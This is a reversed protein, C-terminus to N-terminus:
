PVWGCEKKLAFFGFALLGKPEMSAKERPIKHGLASQPFLKACVTYGDKLLECVSGKRRMLMHKKLSNNICSWAGFLPGDLLPTREEMPRGYYSQAATILQDKTIKPEKWEFAAKLICWPASKRAEQHMLWTEMYDNTAQPISRSQLAQWDYEVFDGQKTATVNTAGNTKARKLSAGAASKLTQEGRTVLEKSKGTPRKKKGISPAENSSNSYPAQKRKKQSSDKMEKDVPTKKVATKPMECDRPIAENVKDESKVFSDM